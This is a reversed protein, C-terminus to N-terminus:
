RLGEGTIFDDIWPFAKEWDEGVEGTATLEDAKKDVPSRWSQAPDNDIAAVIAEGMQYAVGELRSTYEEHRDLQSFRDKVTDELRFDALAEAITSNLIRRRAAQKLEEGVVYDPPILKGNGHREMKHSIWALFVDTSMGDLEIRHTQLWKAWDKDVYSGVAARKSYGVDEVPLGMDLGEWPELGLNIIKVRRAPRAKTGEQLSSYIQTGYGDADHVCFFVIEEETDGLLDLLDKVARTGQGKSTMLACDYREPWGEEILIEFFSEKEIYLVTNFTWQRHRYDEVALTGLAIREKTHPIYLSGRNDRYMKAIDGFLNEYETILQEFYKYDLPRGTAQAVQDRIKYFLRRQGFRYRGQGSAEQRGEEVLDFVADKQTVRKPLSARRGRKARKTATEVAECIQDLFHFLNPAKGDSTIPMYPSTVNLVVRTPPLLGVGAVYHKLGAGSITIQKDSYWSSVSATTPTKNIAILLDVADTKSRKVPTEVWAEIVFPITASLGGRAPELNFFGETKAHADPLHACVGIAGLRRALVPKAYQRAAELLAAAEARTMSDCSRGLFDAAIKGAKAGSCGDFDAVLDRVARGGAAQLLEFFADGDYWFPSTKGKYEEGQALRVAETAWSLTSRDVTLSEGLVVDVRTGARSCKGVIEFGTSGDDQPHLTLVRGNTSVTLRGGTALVAGAVVRLGNGLAGRTPLRLLKSSALPRGISFLAAVEEDSGPIGQGNDAVFFGNDARLGVECSGVVDLANDALEKAVLRPITEVAVGARQGLTGLTRFLTWDERIFM